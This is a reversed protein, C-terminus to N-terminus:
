VCVCVCVCVCLVCVCRVCLHPSLSVVISAALVVSAAHTHVGPKQRWRSCSGACRWLAERVGGARVAGEGGRGHWAQGAPLNLSAAPSLSHVAHAAPLACPRPPAVDHSSHACPCRIGDVPAVAHTRHGAASCIDAAPLM